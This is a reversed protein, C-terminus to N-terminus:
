SVATEPPRATLYLFLEELRNTRNRLSRVRLGAEALRDFLSTLDADRAVFVELTHTDLARWRVGPPPDPLGVAARAGDLDLVYAEEALRALLERRPGVTLLRGHDLIAIRDCLHEAEELYHTTLIITRGEGNLRRLFAWTERRMEVDVGATPEDLIVLRPEHVLARAILLRRKMGGSLARAPVRRKAGLDLQELIRAVRPRAVSRPVGYFGAQNLLIDEVAEFLNFNVEQPCLGILRRVAGPERDLDHGYVRVRGATKRCLSTVIGITTTKGAGNAGLLGFFEGAAVELDLGHLAAIGGPYTKKVGEIALAPPPSGPRLAPDPPM